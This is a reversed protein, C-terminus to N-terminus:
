MRELSDNFYEHKTSNIIYYLNKLLATITRDMETGTPTYNSFTDTILDNNRDSLAKTIDQYTQYVAGLKPFHYAILDVANQRTM